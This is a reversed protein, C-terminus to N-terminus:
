TLLGMLPRPQKSTTYRAFCPISNNVLLPATAQRDSLRRSFRRDAREIAVLAAITVSMLAAGAIMVALLEVLSMGGRRLNSLRTRM